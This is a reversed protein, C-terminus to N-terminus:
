ECISAEFTGSLPNINTVEARVAGGGNRISDYTPQPPNKCEGIRQRGQFTILAGDIAQITLPGETAPMRDIADCLVNRTVQSPDVTFLDRQSLDYRNREIHKKYTAQRKNLIDAGM